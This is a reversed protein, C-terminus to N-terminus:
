GYSNEIKGNSITIKRINPMLREFIPDHTAIILTHGKSKLGNLLKIFQKSNELDLNATPEDCIVINPRNVVARAIACRQKEGGSLHYVRSNAKHSINAERMAEQVRREAIDRELRLPILSAIINEYVTLYEILGFDQFIVGVSKQRFSDLEIQPLKSIKVGDVEVLGETPRDLGAILGILTTKGSGSVGSLIITENKFIQLNINDLAKTGNDFIKSVDKLTVIPKKM